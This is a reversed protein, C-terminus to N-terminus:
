VQILVPPNIKTSASATTSSGVNGLRKQLPATGRSLGRGAAVQPPTRSRPSRTLLNQM